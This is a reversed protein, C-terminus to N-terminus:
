RQEVGGQRTFFMKGGTRVWGSPSHDFRQVSAPEYGAIAILSVASGRATM